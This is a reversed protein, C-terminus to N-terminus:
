KGAFRWSNSPVNNDARADQHFRPFSDKDRPNDKRVDGETQPTAHCRPARKQCTNDYIKISHQEANYLKNEAQMLQDMYRQLVASSCHVHDEYFHHGQADGFSSIWLLGEDLWSTLVYM